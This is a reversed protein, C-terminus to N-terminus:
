VAFCGPSWREFVVWREERTSRGAEKGFVFQPFHLGWTSEHRWMVKSLLTGLTISMMHLWGDTKLHASSSSEGVATRVGLIKRGPHVSAEGVVTHLRYKCGVSRGVRCPAGSPDVARNILELSYLESRWREWRECGKRVCGGYSATSTLSLSSIVKQGFQWDLRIDRRHVSNFIYVFCGYRVKISFSFTSKQRLDAWFISVPFSFISYWGVVLLSVQGLPYKQLGTSGRGKLSCQNQDWIPWNWEIQATYDRVDIKYWYWYVFDM